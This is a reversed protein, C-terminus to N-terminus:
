KKNTIRIIEDNSIYGIFEINNNENYFANDEVNDLSFGECFIVKRLKKMNIFARSKIFCDKSEIIITTIANNNNFAYEGIEKINSPICLENDIANINNFSIKYLNSCENFAYSEIVELTSPLSICALSDCNEFIHSCLVKIKSKSFDVLYLSDNDEFLWPSVYEVTEGFVVEDLSDCNGIAGITMNTVKIGYKSSIENTNYYSIKENFMSDLTYTHEGNKLYAIENIYKDDIIEINENKLAKLLDDNNKIPETTAIKKGKIYLDLGSSNLNYFANNSIVFSDGEFILTKLEKINGFSLMSIHKISSPLVITEINSAKNFAYCDILTLNTFKALDVTILKKCRTFSFRPISTLSLSLNLSNIDSIDNNIFLGIELKKYDKNIKSFDISNLLTCNEFAFQKLQLTGDKVDIDKPLNIKTLSFCDEVFSEGLYKVSNPIYLKKLKSCEYFAFDGISILTDPLIVNVLKKQYKFAYPKLSIISNAVDICKVNYPIDFEDLYNSSSSYICLSLPKFLSDNNEKNVNDIDVFKLAFTSVIKEKKIEKAAFSLFTVKDNSYEKTVLYNNINLFHPFANPKIIIKKNILEKDIFVKNYFSYNLLERENMKAVAKNNTALRIIDNDISCNIFVNNSHNFESYNIFEYSDRIISLMNFVKGELLKNAKNDVLKTKENKYIKSIVDFLLQHKDIVSVLYYFSSYDFEINENLMENIYFEYLMSILLTPNELASLEIPKEDKIILTTSYKQLTKIMASIIFLLHNDKKLPHNKKVENLIDLLTEAKNKAFKSDAIIALFEYISEYEKPNNFFHNFVLKYLYSHEGKENRLVFKDYVYYAGYYDNFIRQYYKDNKDVLYTKEKIENITNQVNEDKLKENLAENINKLVDNDGIAGKLGVYQLANESYKYNDKNTFVGNTAAIILNNIKTEIQGDKVYNKIILSVIYPNSFGDISLLKISKLIKEKDDLTKIIKIKYLNDLFTHVEFGSFDRVKFALNYTKSIGRIENNRDSSAKYLKVLKELSNERLGLIVKGSNDKEILKFTAESIIIRQKNDDKIEDWSDILYIIQYNKLIDNYIKKVIKDNVTKYIKGYFTNQLVNKIRKELIFNLLSREDFKGENNEKVDTLDIFFPFVKKNNYNGHNEFIDLFKKVLLTSKGSGPDGLLLYTKQENNLLQYIIDNNKIRTESEINASYLSTNYSIERLVVKKDIFMENFQKIEDNCKFENNYNYYCNKIKVIPLLDSAKDHNGKDNYNYDKFYRNVYNKYATIKAILKLLPFYSLLMIIFIIGLTVYIYQDNELPSEILFGLLTAIIEYPTKNITNLAEKLAAFPPFVILLLSFAIVISGYKRIKKYTSEDIKLFAAIFCIILTTIGLVIGVLKIM